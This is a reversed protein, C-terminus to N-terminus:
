FALIVTVVLVAILLIVWGIVEFVGQIARTLVQWPTMGTTHVVAQPNGPAAVRRRSAEIGRFILGFITAYLVGTLLGAIFEGSVIVVSRSFVGWKAFRFKGQYV